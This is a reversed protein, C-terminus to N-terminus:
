GNECVRDCVLILVEPSLDEVVPIWPNLKELGDKQLCGVHMMSVAFQFIQLHFTCITRLTVYWKATLTLLSLRCPSPLRQLCKIHAQYLVCSCMLWIINTISLGLIGFLLKRESLHSLCVRQISYKQSSFSIIKLFDCFSLM